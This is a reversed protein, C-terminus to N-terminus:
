VVIGIQTQVPNLSNHLFNWGRLEGGHADADGFCVPLQVAAPGPLIQPVDWLHGDFVGKVARDLVKGMQPVRISAFCLGQSYHHSVRYELPLSVTTQPDLSETLLTNPLVSTSLPM